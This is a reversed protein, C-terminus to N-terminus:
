YRKFYLKQELMQMPYTTNDDFPYVLDSIEIPTFEDTVIALCNYGEVTIVVTDRGSFNSFNNCIIGYIKDAKVEGFRYGLLEKIQVEEKDLIDWDEPVEIAHEYQYDKLLM